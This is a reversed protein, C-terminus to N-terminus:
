KSGRSDGNPAKFNKWHSPSKQKVPVVDKHKKKGTKQKGSDSERKRVAPLDCVYLRKSEKEGVTLLSGQHVPALTPLTPKGPGKERGKLDKTKALPEEM